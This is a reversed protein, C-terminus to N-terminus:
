DDLRYQLAGSPCHDVQDAIAQRSAGDVNIWPRADVNFVNPLGQVCKGAHICIESDFTVTIGNGAYAKTSAESM